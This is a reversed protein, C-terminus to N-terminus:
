GLEFVVEGVACDIGFGDLVLTLVGNLLNFNVVFFVDSIEFAMVEFGRKELDRHLLGGKNSRDLCQEVLTDLVL